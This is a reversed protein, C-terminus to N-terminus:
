LFAKLKAVREMESATFYRGDGRNFFAFVGENPHQDIFERFPSVERNWAIQSLEEVSWYLLGDKACYGTDTMYFRCFPCIMKCITM